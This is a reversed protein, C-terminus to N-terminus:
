VPRGGALQELVEGAHAKLAKRTDADMAAWTAYPRNLRPNGKLVDANRDLFDWYLANFPCAGKGTRRRVDYDCGKCYDSMKNIYNGGSMYPKSGLLGGDAFQSMGLTNPLEVWEYADAYVALYWAHVEQPRVGTLLAFNGTIMLRQIHHAYAEEITQTIAERMCRMRTQATWYFDPLPAFANLANSDGYDPMEMWYIGRVYERWGLIQRIYGEAANLPVQGNRYAAEVKRCLDMPDLLGANLYVSLMSHFLFKEGRLMADQYTGFGALATEMFHDLAEQAQDRTVAFWFPELDGIHDGFRRAVLDLVERTIRDPEFRRPSPMFLDAKAPRRNDADFNWQGGAPKGGEMLLGTKRRMQRYFHEMRRQRRGSAWARFESVSCLFRTDTVIDVPVGLASPWARMDELVRWEGPETVLVREPRHRAAARAVEGQFSGTNGDADLTVYDVMWGAARLEEAFHRMAAFLFAIKKKHHRVYTAERWVEAMLVRDSAPDARKLSSLDPSLQDGLVVVLNRCPQPDSM